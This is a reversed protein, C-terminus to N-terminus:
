ARRRMVGSHQQANQNVAVRGPPKRAALQLACSVVAHREAVDGGVVVGVVVRDGRKPPPKELLDLPQENPNQQERALHPNQFQSRDAEVPRLDVGVGATVACKRPFVRALELRLQFGLHHIQQRPGLRRILGVNGVAHRNGLLQGQALLTQGLERLRARPDLRPRFLAVRTLPGLVLGFEGRARGLGGRGALLGAALRGRRRDFPRQRLVLDIEGVGVERM